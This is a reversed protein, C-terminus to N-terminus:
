SARGIELQRFIPTSHPGAGIEVLSGNTYDNKILDISTKFLPYTDILNM